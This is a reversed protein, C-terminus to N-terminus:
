ENTELPSYPKCWTPISSDALVRWFSSVRLTVTVAAKGGADSKTEVIAHVQCGGTSGGGSGNSVFYRDPFVRMFCDNIPWM